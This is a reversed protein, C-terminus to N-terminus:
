AEDLKIPSKNQIALKFSVCEKKVRNVGPPPLVQVETQSVVLNCVNKGKKSRNRGREGTNITIGFAPPSLTLSDYILM